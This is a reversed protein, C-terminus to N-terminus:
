AAVVLATGNERRAVKMKKDTCLSRLVALGALAARKM